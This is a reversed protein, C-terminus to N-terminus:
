FSVGHLRRQESQRNGEDNRQNGRQDPRVKDVPILKPRLELGLRRPHDARGHADAAFQIRPQQRCRRQPQARHHDAAGVIEALDAGVLEIDLEAQSRQHASFPAGGFQRDVADREIEAEIRLAPDIPRCRAALEIQPRERDIAQVQGAADRQMVRRAAAGELEVIDGEAAIYARQRSRYAAVAVEHQGTHAIRKADRGTLARVSIGGPDMEVDIGACAGQGGIEIARESELRPRRAEFARDNQGNGGPELSVAVNRYRRPSYRGPDFRIRGRRPKFLNFGAVASLFARQFECAHALHVKAQRRQEAGRERRPLEIGVPKDGLVVVGGLRHAYQWRQSRQHRSDGFRRDRRM